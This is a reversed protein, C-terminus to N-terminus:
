SQVRIHKQNRRCLWLGVLLLCPFVLAFLLGTHLDGDAAGAVLGTVTPGASCGLDGALALLAFLATGGRPFAASALSFTGPWLVGVSLGCLGCGLLGLVPWPSLSALLYSIICLIGSCVMTPVLSLRNSKKAYFLRACGMMLAFLCPGALDGITKSVKLGSEAFASSWQSLAQESAGSCVMLLVFIWFLKSSFLKGFSLGEGNETLTAIPVKWFFLGNCLPVLAWLLALVRWHRIGLTTFFVTSLIVVAAHGWCYFSHLLSMSASKNETPCAEVIPSVLVELLGGGVAYLAMAAFLGLYPNAFLSPFFSLGAIGIASLFHAAVVCPRYGIRDVFKSALLDVLLQILFNATVLTTILSLPIQYTTQFTLFLLPAFNNVIAQTIYGVYSAALTHRYTLTM